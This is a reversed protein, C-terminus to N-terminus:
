PIAHWMPRTLGTMRTPQHRQEIATDAGEHDRRTRLAQNQQACSKEDRSKPKRTETSPTAFKRWHRRLAASEHNAILARTKIRGLQGIRSIRFVDFLDAAASQKQHAGEHVLDNVVIRPVLDGKDLPPFQRRSDPKLKGHQPGTAGSKHAPM